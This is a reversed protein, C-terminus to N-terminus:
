MKRVTVVVIGGYGNSNKDPSSENTFQIEEILADYTENTRYDTISVIDGLEELTELAKIKEYANGIYGTSSNFKDMEVDFCSLPLQIIRQRKSGPLAKLQYSSIVPTTTYPSANNFTFRFGALERSSELGYLPTDIDMKTTDLIDINTYTGSEDFSSLTISDNTSITGNVKIYKFFKPEVTAYRILGTELYGSTVKKTTHEIQIEGAGEENIIMVLQNNLNFVGTTLSDDGDAADYEIDYAWPFTGDDLQNALDIRVLIANTSSGNVASTGIYAYNGRTVIATCGTSSEFNLRGLVINDYVDQQCIRVGKNTTIILSGLRYEINNVVEGFPLQIAMQAGAFDPLNTTEDFGISYIESHGNAKGAIYINSASATADVWKWGANPHTFSVNTPSGGITSNATLDVAGATHSASSTHSPNIAYVINDKSFAVYGKVYKIFASTVASTSYKYIITDSNSTGVLGKHICLSCAAYYYTGDTTVSLVPYTGTSHDTIGTGGNTYTASSMSTDDAVIKLKHLSGSSNGVVLCDGTGDNAACGVLTTVGPNYGYYVQPLMRLEGINWVDVGRSDKFRHTVNQEVGPEYYKIGAGDHWSTQSRLWWGTLSQEGPENSSDFQDKKFPATQRVYPNQNDIRLFFPINNISVDYAAKTPEWKTNDKQYSLDYVLDETIDVAM